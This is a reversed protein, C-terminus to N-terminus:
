ESILNEQIISGCYLCDKSLIENGGDLFKTDLVTTRNDDLLNINGDLRVSELKSIIYDSFYLESLSLENFKSTLRSGFIIGDIRIRNNLSESVFFDILNFDSYEDPYKYKTKLVDQLNFIERLKNFADDEPLILVSTFVLKEILSKDITNIIQYKSSINLNDKYTILTNLDYELKDLIKPIIDSYQNFISANLNDKTLISELLYYVKGDLRLTDKIDINSKLIFKSLDEMIREKFIMLDKTSHINKFASIVESFEIGDYVKNFIYSQLELFDMLTLDEDIDPNKSPMKISDKLILLEKIDMDLMDVMVSHLTLKEVMTSYNNQLTKYVISLNLNDSHKLIDNGSRKLSDILRPLSDKYTTRVWSQINDKNLIFDIITYQKSNLTIPQLDILNLQESTNNYESETIKNIIKDKLEIYEDIGILYKKTLTVEKLNLKEEIKKFEIEEWEIIDILDIDDDKTSVIDMIAVYKDMYRMFESGRDTLMYIINCSVLEAKASKFFNLIKFVSDLLSNNSDFNHNLTKYEDLVKKVNEVVNNIESDIETVYTYRTYLQISNENLVKEFTTDKNESDFIGSIYKSTMLVDYLKRYTYYEDISTASHMCETIYLRLKPLDRISINIAQVSSTKIRDIYRMLKTNKAIYENYGSIKKISEITDKFNFGLYNFVTSAETSIVGEWGKSKCYLAALYIFIDYISARINGINVILNKTDKKMDYIMKIAYANEYTMAMLDYVTQIGIYKTEIYNFNETNLKDILDKDNVWYPDLTIIDEYAISNNPDAIHTAPDKGLECASFKIEYAGSQDKAVKGHEDYIFLPTDNAGMRHTKTLYYGFITMSGLDFLNFLDLFVKNTGKYSILRNINKVIRKHYELPIEKYFPVGYSDYVIKLSETDYFERDIDSELYKSNMNQITMFLVCMALFGDYYKNNNRFARNYYVNNVLAANRKYCLLFDQLLGESIGNSDYSIIDFREASRAKFCDIATNGLYKLYKKNPNEKILTNIYGEKKMNTIIDLTMEHIPKDFGWELKKTNYVYDSISSPLGMLTRYYPNKEVYTTIYNDVLKGGVLKPINYAHLGTNPNKTRLSEQYVKVVENRLGEPIKNKDDSYILINDESIHLVEFVYRPFSEVMEFSLLGKNAIMFIETSYLDMSDELSNAMTQDKWVISSSLKMIMEKYVESSLSIDYVQNM